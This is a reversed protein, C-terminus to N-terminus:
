KNMNNKSQVRMIKPLTYNLVMPTAAKPVALIQKSVGHTHWGEIVNANPTMLAYKCFDVFWSFWDGTCYFKFFVRVQIKVDGEVFHISDDDVQYWLPTQLLAELLVDAQLRNHAKQLKRIDAIFVDHDPHKKHVWDGRTAKRAIHPWCTGFEKFHKLFGQRVGESHDFM